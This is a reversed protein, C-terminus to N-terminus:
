KQTKKTGYRVFKKKKFTNIDQACYLFSLEIAFNIQISLLTRIILKKQLKQCLASHIKDLSLARKLNISEMHVQLWCNVKNLEKDFEFHHRGM